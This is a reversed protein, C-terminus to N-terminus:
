STPGRGIFVFHTGTPSLDQVPLDIGGLVVGATAATNVAILGARKHLSSVGSATEAIANQGKLLESDGMELPNKDVNVGALGMHTVSLKGM